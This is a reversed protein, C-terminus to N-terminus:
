KEAGEASRMTQRGEEKRERIKELVLKGQALTVVPEACLGGFLKAVQPSFFASDSLMEEKSGKAIITGQTMLAIEAAYEAAFEVDHTVLLIARGEKQLNQLIEGLHAKLEYDLGRTPEDLIILKPDAALVAALAVRQREGSSLDRAYSEAFKTLGLKELLLDVRVGKPLHLN